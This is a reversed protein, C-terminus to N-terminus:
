LISPTPDVDRREQLVHHVVGREELRRTLDDLYAPGDFGVAPTTRIQHDVGSELLVRLSEWARDGSGPIGTVAPYDGPLAKIDLGVWDVSRLVRRLREPFPGATHLGVKFGMQRVDSAAAELAVVQTLPEGGSFVVADLLGERGSLFATVDGWEIVGPGTEQLDVNHCYTCRWPCGQCYVVASLEGPYDITTMPTLGGVRLSPAKIM